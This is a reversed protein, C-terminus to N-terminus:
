FCISALLSDKKRDEAGVGVGIGECEANLRVSIRWGTATVM